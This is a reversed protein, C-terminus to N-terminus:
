SAFIGFEGTALIVEVGQLWPGDEGTRLLPALGLTLGL